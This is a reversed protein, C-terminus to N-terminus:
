LYKKNVVIFGKNSEIAAWDNKDRWRRRLRLIENKASQRSKFYTVIVLRNQKKTEWIHHLKM